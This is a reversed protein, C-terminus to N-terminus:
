YFKEELLNKEDIVSNLKADSTEGFKKYDKTGSFQDTVIGTKLLQDWRNKALYDQYSSWPYKHEKKFWKILERPNRHMYASLYLLQENNLIHVAQFPGQLLHGCNEHKTNFYKTYANQTRQMYQSIGGEKLEYIILHFHNPMLCFGILEITRNKLIKDITEDDINFVSHKVFHTVYRSMNHFVTPSQLYLITFLFRIWDRNDLFINQKNNGRNYIHYYEGPAIEVKRM